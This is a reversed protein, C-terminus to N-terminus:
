STMWDATSINKSGTHIAVIGLTLQQWSVKKFGSQTLEKEIDEVRPFNEVTRALYTYAQPDRCFVSALRPMIHKLYFFYFGCFWEQPRTFELIHFSGGPKLVRLVEKMAAPRDGFNRLGFAVTAVTFSSDAFPLQLADGAVLIPIGKKQAQDLMPLCFDSGVVKMGKKLLMGAVDGSGTALDLITESQTNGTTMSRLVSSVLRHRWWLDIGLSFFRNLFDYPEAIRGFMSRVTRGHELPLASSSMSSELTREGAFLCFFPFGTLSGMKLFFGSLKGSHNRNLDAAPNSPSM